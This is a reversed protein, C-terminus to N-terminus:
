QESNSACQDDCRNSGDDWVCMVYLSSPVLALMGVSWAQGESMTLMTLTDHRPCRQSRLLLELNGFADSADCKSRDLHQLACYM